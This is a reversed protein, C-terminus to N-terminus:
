FLNQLLLRFEKGKNPDPFFVQAGAANGGGKGGLPQAKEKVLQGLHLDTTLNHSLIFREGLDIVVVAFTLDLIARALQNGEEITNGPLDLFFPSSGQSIIAQARLQMRESQLDKLKKELERKQQLESHVRAVVDHEPVSLLSGLSTSLEHKGGYDKLARNGCLFYVRIMGKYKETKIIKLLGIQGTALVHTGSCPSYDLEAIEVIRLDGELEPRKRLPVDTLEQPSLIYTHLPLNEFITQNVKAEAASQIDKSLDPTLIDISCYDNGLHFSETAYDYMDQFLASLLHQGSHQQMHDLRRPWDLLCLAEDDRLPKAIAHFIVGEEEFVYLLPIGNITGLDHPQGGGTPYFITEKLVILHHDGKKAQRLITTQLEQQWPNTYYLRSIIM